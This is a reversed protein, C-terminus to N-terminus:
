ALEREIAHARLALARAAADDRAGPWAPALSLPLAAELLARGEEAIREPPPLAEPAADVDIEVGCAADLLEEGVAAALRALRPGSLEADIARRYRLLGALAAIRERAEAPADLWDPLKALDSFRPVPDGRLRGAFRAGRGAPVAAALLALRRRRLEGNM